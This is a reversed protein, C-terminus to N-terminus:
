VQGKMQISTRIYALCLSKLLLSYLLNIQLQASAPAIAIMQASKVRSEIDPMGPLCPLPVITLCCPTESGPRLRAAPRSLRLSKLARGESRAGEGSSDGGKLLWHSCHEACCQSRPRGISGPESHGYSSCTPRNAKTRGLRAAGPQFPLGFFWSM